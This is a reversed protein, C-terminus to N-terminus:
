YKCFRYERPIGQRRGSNKCIPLESFRLLTIIRRCQKSLISNLYPEMRVHLKVNSYLDLSPSNSIDSFLSQVYCDKLRLEFERLFVDINSPGQAEWVYGFGYMFLTKKLISVWSHRDVLDLKCLMIYCQKPYRQAPLKVIKCWYKVSRM